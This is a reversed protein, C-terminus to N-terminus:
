ICTVSVQTDTPRPSLTIGQGGTSPTAPTVVVAGGGENPSKTFLSDILDDLSGEQTAQPKAMVCSTALLVGFLVTKLM